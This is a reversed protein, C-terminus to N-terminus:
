VSVRVCCFLFWSGARAREKIADLICVSIVHYLHPSSKFQCKTEHVSLTLEQLVYM